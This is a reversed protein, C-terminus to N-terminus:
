QSSLLSPMFSRTFPTDLNVNNNCFENILMDLTRWSSGTNEEMAMKALEALEEVKIRVEKGMEGEMLERVM